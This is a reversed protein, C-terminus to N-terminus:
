FKLGATMLSAMYYRQLALFLGVTPLTMLTSVAMQWHFDQGRQSQFLSLALPVTRLKDTSIVLLPWYFSNWVSLFDFIALTVL